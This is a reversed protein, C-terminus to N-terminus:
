LKIDYEQLPEMKCLYNCAFPEWGHSFCAISDMNIPDQSVHHTTLNSSMQLIEVRSDTSQDERLAIVKFHFTRSSYFHIEGRAYDWTGKLDELTAMRSIINIRKARATSLLDVLINRHVFPMMIFTEEADKSLFSRLMTTHLTSDYVGLLAESFLVSFSCQKKPSTHKLKEAHSFVRQFLRQHEEVPVGEPVQKCCKEPTQVSPSRRRKKPTQPAQLMMADFKHKQEPTSISLLLELKKETDALKNEVTDLPWQDRGHRMDQSPQSSAM